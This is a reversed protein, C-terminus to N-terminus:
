NVAKTWEIGLLHTGKPDVCVNVRAGTLRATKAMDYLIAANNDAGVGYWATDSQSTRVNFRSNITNFNYNKITVDTLLTGASYDGCAKSLSEGAFSPTTFILTSFLVSFVLKKMDFDGNNYM